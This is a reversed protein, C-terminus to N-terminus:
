HCTQGRMRCTSFHKCPTINYRILPKPPALTHYGRRSPCNCNCRCNVITRAVRPPTTPLPVPVTRDIM